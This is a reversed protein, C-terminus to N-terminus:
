AAARYPTAAPPSTSAEDPNGPLGPRIDGGRGDVGHGPASALALERINIAANVDANDTHNCNVCAFAAQNKRNEKATHGCATCRQSTHAPNVAIVVVPRPTGDHDVAAAAKAELRTRFLGWAQAHIQRNLGRKQAVNVGPREVSGKASRVMSSVQLDEIAVLDHDRVLATTTQEIWDKRRDVERASLRALAHKTAARRNSGKTQRALRRQLRCRRAKEAPSLLEGMALHNGDSTAATVAVGLDIGVVAGTPTRVFAPQPATFSVWWRGARDCTVRASKCAAIDAFSRTLRFRVPGLKPVVVTAWKRGLREVTLDRIVFSEHLGAKRWTPRGFHAPNKWWNKFARDLDRLASQQVVSSGEGLWTHHRAEALAKQQEVAGLRPLRAAQSRTWYNRQELGLNWVFRAHRCHGALVPVQEDTPYLRERIAMTVVSTPPLVCEGSVPPDFVM